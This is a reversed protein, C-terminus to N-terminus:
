KDQPKGDVISVQVADLAFSQTQGGPVSPSVVVIPGQQGNFVQQVVCQVTVADGVKVEKAM